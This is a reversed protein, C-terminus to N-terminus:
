RSVEEVLAEYCALPREDVEGAATRYAPDFRPPELSGVAAPRPWSRPAGPWRALGYKGDLRQHTVAESAGCRLIIQEPLICVDIRQGVWAVPAPYRNTEVTVYTDSPVVRRELRERPPTPRADVAILQGVEERAFREAPREHTTGHLREDAVELSWELLWTNLEELDRFRRGALANRKVYKVGSEVKGKTQARYYRCLRIEVGYFDMRDKFTQQWEIHGSAEDKRLVITRPNDYLIERTRGGFYAFAATHADLLSDLRENLYAKAFLRRSYGLVMVFLHVRIPADAFWVRTSGWDVQAQQGPETEFRPTAAISHCAAQRAPRLYRVLAPYSGAYGLGQLERLLVAANFGVEPARDHLFSAFRDLARPPASRHAPQWAGSLWKRVTKVDLDLHRAIASKSMGQSFLTRVAGWETQKIVIGEEAGTPASALIASTADTEMM